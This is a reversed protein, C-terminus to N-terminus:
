GVLGWEVVRREVALSRLKLVMRGSPVTETVTNGATEM